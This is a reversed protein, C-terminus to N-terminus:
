AAAAAARGKLTAAVAACLLGLALPMVSEAYSPALIALRTVHTVHSVQWLTFLGWACGLAGLLPGAWGALKPLGSRGRSTLGVVLVVVCLVILLFDILQVLPSSDILLATPPMGGITMFWFGAVLGLLTLVWLLVVSTKM